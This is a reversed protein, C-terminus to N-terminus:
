QLFAEIARMFAAPQEVHPFHGAGEVILLSANPFAARWEAASAVPIPDKEGHIILVPLQVERFNQRWDWDGLPQLASANVLTSNRLAEPPVECVDGRMRALVTTDAPNAFYGRIFISWFAKCAAIPDSATKRAEGLERVRAQMTKDMWARLNESFQQMYPTARAPMADVLILKAAHDSYTRAYEAALVAGWSHGLLVVRDLKFHERLAEVDRIHDALRLRNPDALVTSRGGGRQDYHILTHDRALIELDPALYASSLGPGGHLVLLTDRGSGRTQYYLRVGDPTVVYGDRALDSAPLASVFEVFTALSLLLALAFTIRKGAYRQM